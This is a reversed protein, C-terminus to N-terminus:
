LSKDFHYGMGMNHCNTDYHHYIRTRCYSKSVQFNKYRNGHTDRGWLFVEWRLLTSYFAECLQISIPNFEDIRPYFM